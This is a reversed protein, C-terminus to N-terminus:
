YLRVRGDLASTLMMGDAILPIGRSFNAHRPPCIQVKGAEIAAQILNREDKSVVTKAYSIRKRFASRTPRDAANRARKTM